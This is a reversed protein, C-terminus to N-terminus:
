PTKTKVRCNRCVGFLTTKTKDIQFHDSASLAQEVNDSVEKPLHFTRGCQTCSLHIHEKCGEAQIYRYRIEKTHEGTSRQVLGAEELVVLNRYVASLSIGRESLEAAIQKPTYASDPHSILFDQLIKRQETKYTM